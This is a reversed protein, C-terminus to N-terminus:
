RSKELIFVIFRAVIPLNFIFPSVPKLEGHLIRFKKLSTILNDVESPTRENLGQELYNHYFKLLFEDKEEPVVPDNIIIKGKKELLLETANVIEIFEEDKVHHLIGPFLILDFKKDREAFKRIDCVEFEFQELEKFRKKAYQLAYDDIDIGVYEIGKVKSFGM